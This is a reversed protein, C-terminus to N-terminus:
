KKPELTSLDSLVIDAGNESLNGPHEGGVRDVGVVLGFGGARGAQVGSIADEFVAAEDPSAGLRKAAAVFLDPAPKGALDLERADNGDIIVEFLGTLNTSELIPRGNRSSTVLGIGVGAARLSEVLSVGDEFVAAGREDLMKNFMENKRNGLGCVTEKGPPDEPSGYDLEIGRSALMDRVGEYRPKGDLHEPYDRELDFPESVREGGPSGAFYEDFMRKWAEAHLHATRTIVGDLDFVAAKLKGPDLGNNSAIM